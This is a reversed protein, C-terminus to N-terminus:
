PIIGAKYLCRDAKNYWKLNMHMVLLTRKVGRLKYLPVIYTCINSHKYVSMVESYMTYYSSNIRIKQVYVNSSGFPIMNYNKWNLIRTNCLKIQIFVFECTLFHPSVRFVEHLYIRPKSYMYEDANSRKSSKYMICVEFGIWDLWIWWNLGLAKTVAMSGWRRGRRRIRSMRSNLWFKRSNWFFSM